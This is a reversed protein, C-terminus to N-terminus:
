RHQSAALVILTSSNSPQVSTSYQDTLRTPLSTNHLDHILQYIPNHEGIHQEPIFQKHHHYLQMYIKLQYYHPKIDGHQYSQIRAQQTLHM